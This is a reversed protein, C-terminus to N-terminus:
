PVLDSIYYNINTKRFTLRITDNEWVNNFIEDTNTQIKWRKASTDYLLPHYSIKVFLQPVNSATSQQESFTFEGDFNVFRLSDENMSNSAPLHEIDMEYLSVGLTDYVKYHGAIVEWKNPEPPPEPAPVKDKRCAAAMGCLSLLLLYSLAKKM